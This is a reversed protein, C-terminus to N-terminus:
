QTAHRQVYRMDEVFPILHSVCEGSCRVNAGVEILLKTRWSIDPQQTKLNQGYSQPVIKQIKGMLNKRPLIKVLDWGENRGTHASQEDYSTVRLM